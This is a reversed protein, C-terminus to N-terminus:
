VETNSDEGETALNQFISAIYKGMKLNGFSLSLMNVPLDEGCKM